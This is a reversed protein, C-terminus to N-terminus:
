AEVAEVKSVLSQMALAVEIVARDQDDGEPTEMVGRVKARVGKWAEGIAMQGYKLLDERTDSM